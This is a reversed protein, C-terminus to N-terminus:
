YSTRVKSYVVPGVYVRRPRLISSFVKTKQTKKHSRHFSCHFLNLYNDDLQTIFPFFHRVKPAFYLSRVLISPYNYHRGLRQISTRVLPFREPRSGPLKLYQRVRSYVDQSKFFRGPKLITTRANSYDDPCKFLLGPM